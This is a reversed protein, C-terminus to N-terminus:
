GNEDAFKIEKEESVEVKGFLDIKNAIIYILLDVGLISKIYNYHYKKIEKFSKKDNYWIRLYFM